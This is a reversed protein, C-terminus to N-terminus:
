FRQLSSSQVSTKPVHEQQVTAHLSSRRMSLWVRGKGDIGRAKQCQSTRKFHYWCTNRCGSNQMGLQEHQALLFCRAQVAETPLRIIVFPRHQGAVVAWLPEVVVAHPELRWPLVIVIICNSGFVEAARCAAELYTLHLTDSRPWMNNASDKAKGCVHTEITAAEMITLQTRDHRQEEASM